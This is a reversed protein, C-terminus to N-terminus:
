VPVHTYPNGSAPRRPPGALPPPPLLKLVPTKVPKMAAKELRAARNMSSKSPASLPPQLQMSQLQQVSLKIAVLEECLSNRVDKYRYM